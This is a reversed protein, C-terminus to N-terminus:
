PRTMFGQEPTLALLEQEFQTRASRQAANYKGNRPTLAQYRALALSARNRKYSHLYHTLQRLLSLAQRSTIAYCYSPTHRQSYARKRTIKGA